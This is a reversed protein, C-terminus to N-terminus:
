LSTATTSLHGNTSTGSYEGIAKVWNGLLWLPLRWIQEMSVHGLKVSSQVYFSSSINELSFCIDGVLGNKVNIGWIGSLATVGAGIMIHQCLGDLKTKLFLYM